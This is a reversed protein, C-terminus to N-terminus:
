VTHTRSTSVICGPMCAYMREFFPTANIATATVIAQKAEDLGQTYQTWIKTGKKVSKFSPHDDVFAHLGNRLTWGSCAIPYEHADGDVAVHISSGCGRVLQALRLLLRLDTGQTPPASRPRGM